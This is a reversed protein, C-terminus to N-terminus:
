PLSFAKGYLRCFMYHFLCCPFFCVVEYRQQQETALHHGVRPSGMSQLGGCEGDKVIEGHKSLNMDTSDFISDLWRM